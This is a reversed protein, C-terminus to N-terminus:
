PAEVPPRPLRPPRGVPHPAEREKPRPAALVLLFMFPFIPSRQRAIIGLNSFTLGIMLTYALLLPIAFRLLRHRRWNKLALTVERRRRWALWWFALVELAAVLATANHVDWPFPRMWINIFAMPVAALGSSRAGLSSGGELTQGGRYNVFEQVGELDPEELGFQSAMGGLLFVAVVAAAISELIRRPSPRRWSQLWYAGATALGLVAGVHPRLAFALGLGALFPVWRVRNGGCEFIDGVGFFVAFLQDVLRLPVAVVDNWSGFTFGRFQHVPCSPKCLGPEITGL